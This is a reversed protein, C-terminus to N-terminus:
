AMWRNNYKLPHIDMCDDILNFLNKKKKKCIKISQISM